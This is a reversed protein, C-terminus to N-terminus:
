KRNFQGVRYKPPNSKAIKVTNLATNKEIMQRGKEKKWYFSLTVFIILYYNAM